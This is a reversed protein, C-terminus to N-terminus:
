DGASGNKYAIVDQLFSRYQQAIVMWDFRRATQEVTDHPPTWNRQLVDALAAATSGAIDSDVLRGNDGIIWRAVPSDHAVVPLGSALAEIYVNGFSEDRALHLFADACRYLDPMADARVTLRRFRGPMVEAALRDVADRMPGDGAVVLWADNVAAVAHIGDPVRKNPSLASVMLVLPVDDPLDYRSREGLGPVFRRADVGNPILATRWPRVHRQQAAFYTPNTCVLGDCGFLRYEATARHTPWDGNETVYVHAPRGRRHRWGRLVWNAFPYSCTVTVDYDGPRYHHLLSPVWTLEEYIFETRLPPVKPWRQFRERPVAHTRVFHYPEGARAAGTGILTITGPADRAMARALSEFATEAGRNVRHLGPLVFAVRV